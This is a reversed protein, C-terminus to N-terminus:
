LQRRSYQVGRLRIEGYGKRPFLLSFVSQAPSIGCFRGGSGRGGIDGVLILRQM